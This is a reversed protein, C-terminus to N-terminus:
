ERTTMSKNRREEVLEVVGLYDETLVPPEWYRPVGAAHHAIFEASAENHGATMYAYLGTFIANRILPNLKAMQDDSLHAVHFAEMENRVMYAICMAARTAYAVSSEDPTQPQAPQRTTTKPKTSAPM